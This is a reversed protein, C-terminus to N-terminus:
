APAAITAGADPGPTQDYVADVALTATVLVGPAMRAMLARETPDGRSIAGLYADVYARAVELDADTPDEISTVAGKVQTSRFTSVDAGTIAISAGVVTQALDVDHRTLLVRLQTTTGANAMARLGWARTAIPEGAGDALGVILASGSELLSSLSPDLVTGRDAGILSFNAVACHDRHHPGM